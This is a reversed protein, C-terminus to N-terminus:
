TVRVKALMKRLLRPFLARLILSCVGKLGMGVSLRFVGTTAFTLIKAACVNVRMGTEQNADMKGYAVGRENLAHRSIDTHVFGPVVLQVRVGQPKAEIALAEVFSHLAAKSASYISRLPTSVQGALSGIFIMHGRPSGDFSRPAAATPPSGDFSRPAAATPPSGDFSRSTAATPAAVPRQALFARFAQRAICMQAVCNTQMIKQIDGPNMQAFYARQSVAAAFIICEIDPFCAYAQECVAAAGDAGDSAGHAAVDALDVPLVACGKGCHAAVKHLKAADRASILVRAGYGCLQGALEAGIGSSAGIIWIARNEFYSRLASDRMDLVAADACAAFYYLRIADCVDGYAMIYSIAPRAM